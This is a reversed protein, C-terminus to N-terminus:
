WLETKDNKPTDESNRIVIEDNLRQEAIAFYKPDKEIGIFKRNTNKCAVGTSGSGMCNDLVVDNENTYTKILYELLAVPKQTPHVRNERMEIDFYLIDDPYNTREIPTSHYSMREGFVTDTANNKRVRYTDGSTSLTGQPYYRIINAAKGRNDLTGKSFVCIDEHKKMPKVKSLMHGTARNKVWVWSYKYLDIQSTVVLSTFPESGFLVIVGDDKIIRNYHEWLKDFPIIIDWACNTTGYPLDCLILDISKDEIYKMQELCDANHIEIM